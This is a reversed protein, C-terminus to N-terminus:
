HDWTGSRDREDPQEGKTDGDAFLHPTVRAFALFDTMVADLHARMAAAAEAPTQRAIAEVVAQHESMSLAQRRPTIIMHRARDLNARAQDIIARMKDFGLAEVLIEHFELDRAHFGQTDNMGAAAEQYALNRRLTELLHPAPQAAAAYAAEAELAKRILMYERVDAIAVRSVITGRQPQIDVLGDAKLRALAQSVPFRSVGLQACVRAKDIPTGPKMHMSVIADRLRETVEDTINGRGGTGLTGLFVYGQTQANM